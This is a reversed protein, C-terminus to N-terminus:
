SQVYIKPLKKDNMWNFWGHMNMRGIVLDPQNIVKKIKNLM